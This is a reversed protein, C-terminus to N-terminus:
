ENHLNNQIARNRLEDVSKSINDLRSHLAYELNHLASTTKNEHSPYLENQIWRVSGNIEDINKEIHGKFKNVYDKIKNDENQVYQAVTIEFHKMTNDVFSKIEDFKENVTKNLKTAHNGLSDNVYKSLENKWKVFKEDLEEILQTNFTTFHSHFTTDVYKSLEENNQTINNNLKESLQNVTKYVFDANAVDQLGKPTGVYKLRKFKFDYHGNATLKLIGKQSRRARYRKAGM